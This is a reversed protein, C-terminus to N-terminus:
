PNVFSVILTGVVVTGVVLSVEFTLGQQKKEITRITSPLLASALLATVGLPIAWVPLLWKHPYIWAGQESGIELLQMGIAVASLLQVVIVVVDVLWRLDRAQAAANIASRQTGENRM